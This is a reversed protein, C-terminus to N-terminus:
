EEKGIERFTKLTMGTERKFVKALVSSSSYNVRLAIEELPLDTDILLKKVEKIKLKKIYDTYTEGMYEKFWRSLYSPNIGLDAAIQNLDFDFGNKSRIYETVMNCQRINIDNKLLVDGVLVLYKETMEKLEYYSIFSWESDKCINVDEPLNFTERISKGLNFLLEKLEDEKIYEWKELLEKIKQNFLEAAVSGEGIEINNIIPKYDLKVKERDGVIKNIKEYDFVLQNDQASVFELAKKAEEYSM